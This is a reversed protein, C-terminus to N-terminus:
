FVFMELLDFLRVFQWLASTWRRPPACLRVSANSSFLFSWQPNQFSSDIVCLDERNISKVHVVLHCIRIAQQLIVTAEIPHCFAPNSSLPMTRSQHENFDHITQTSNM